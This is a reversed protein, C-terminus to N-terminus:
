ITIVKDAFKAMSRKLLADHKDHNMIGVTSLLIKTRSTPDAAHEVDSNNFAFCRYKPDIQPWIKKGNHVFHFTNYAPDTVYIVYRRPEQIEYFADRHPPITGIQMIFGSTGIQDFPLERVCKALGPFREEFGPHFFIGPNEIPKREEAWDLWARYSRWDKPEERLAVYCWEHRGEKYEWYDNDVIKNAHFWDIIEQEDPVDFEIDIPTYIVTM